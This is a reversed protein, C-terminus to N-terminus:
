GPVGHCNMCAMEDMRQPRNLEPAVYDSFYRFSALFEPTLKVAGTDDRLWKALSETKAADRLDALRTEPEMRLVNEATQRLRENKESELLKRLAAQVAAQRRVATLNAMIIASNRSLAMAQPQLTELYLALARSRAAAVSEPLPPTSDTAQEVIEPVPDGFSLVWSVSPLWFHTELPNRVEGPIWNLLTETHLDPNAALMKGMRDAVYWDSDLQGMPQVARHAAERVKALNEAELNKPYKPVLLSYLLNQQELTEPVNWKARSFLKLVPQSLTQRRDYDQAGRYIQEVLPQVLEQTAPLTVASPDSVAGAAHTRLDEPGNTSYDILKDQLPSYPIGNSGELALQLGAMDNASEVKQFYRFAAKGFLDASGPTVYGLQGPGGDGGTTNYFSGAVLVLRRALRDKLADALKPDDLRAELSKFLLALEPYQHEQSANAKHGNAIFLAHSQYRFCNEVLANQEAALLKRIWAQQIPERLPSNWVWWQWAAKAAWARVGPHRDENLARGLLRALRSKDFRAKTLIAD